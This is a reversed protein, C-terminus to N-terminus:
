LKLWHSVGMAGIIASNVQKRSGCWWAAPNIRQGEGIFQPPIHGPLTVALIYNGEVKDADVPNKKQPFSIPLVRDM